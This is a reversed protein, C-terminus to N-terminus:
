RDEMSFRYDRAKKFHNWSEERATNRGMQKRVESLLDMYQDLVTIIHKKNLSVIDAWLDPNGGALRTMDKLGNGSFALYSANGDTDSDGLYEMLCSSLLHPLHSTRAVMVDHAEADAIVTNGGLWRWFEEIKKIDDKENKEYPTLIVSANELINGQSYSYGSKESGAMPHCGIFRKANQHPYISQCIGQKVSGVDIVLTDDGLNEDDLIHLIIDISALVPTAVIVLDVDKVHITGITGYVDIVGDNKAERLVDQNRGYASIVTDPSLEKVKRCISGGLLGLGVVAMSRIM